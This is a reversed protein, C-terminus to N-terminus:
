GTKNKFFEDVNARRFLTKRGCKEYKLGQKMLKHVIPLSIKYLECIQARTIREDKEFNQTQSALIKKLTNEILFELETPTIQTITVAQM